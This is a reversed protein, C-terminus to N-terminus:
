RQKSTDRKSFSDKLQKSCAGGNKAESPDEASEKSANHLKLLDSRAAELEKILDRIQPCSERLRASSTDLKMARQEALNIARISRPVGVIRVPPQREDAAKRALDDAEREVADCYDMFYRPFEKEALAVGCDIDGFFAM